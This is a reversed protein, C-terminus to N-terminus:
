KISAHLDQIEISCIVGGSRTSILSHNSLITQVASTCITQEKDNQHIAQKKRSISKDHAIVGKQTM